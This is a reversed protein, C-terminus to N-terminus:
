TLLGFDDDRLMFTRTPRTPRGLTPLDVSKLARAWFDRAWAELKGNQVMSGLIAGIAIGSGWWWRSFSAM